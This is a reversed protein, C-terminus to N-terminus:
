IGCPDDATSRRWADIYELAEALYFEEISDYMRVTFGPRSLQEIDKSELRAAANLVEDDLTTYDWWGPAVKSIRRM